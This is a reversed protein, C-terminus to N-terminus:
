FRNDKLDVPLCITIFLFIHSKQESACKLLVPQVVIIVDAQDKNFVSRCFFWDYKGFISGIFAILHFNLLLKNYEFIICIECIINVDIAQVNMLM